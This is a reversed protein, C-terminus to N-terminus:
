GSVVSQPVAPSRSQPDPSRPPGTIV